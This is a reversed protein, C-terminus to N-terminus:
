RRKLIRSKGLLAIGKYGRLKLTNGNLEAKGSFTTGTEPEVGRGGIYKNPDKPDAKLNWLVTGGTLPKNHFRGKCTDCVKKGVARPDLVAVIKASIVGNNDTFQLVSDPQNKDNYTIWKTNHLQDAASAMMSLTLGVTVFITKTFSKM